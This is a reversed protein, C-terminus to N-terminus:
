PCESSDPYCPILFYLRNTQMIVDVMAGPQAGVSDYDDPPRPSSSARQQFSRIYGDPMNVDVDYRIGSAPGPSNHTATIVASLRREGSM